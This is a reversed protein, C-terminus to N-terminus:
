IREHRPRSHAYTGATTATSAVTDTQMGATTADGLFWLASGAFAPRATMMPMWSRPHKTATIILGHAMGPDANIFEITVRAPRPAALM